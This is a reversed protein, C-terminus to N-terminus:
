HTHSSISTLAAELAAGELEARSRYLIHRGPMGILLIRPCATSEYEEATGDSPDVLVEGVLGSQKVFVQADETPLAIVAMIPGLRQARQLAGIRRAAAHCRPCGCFFMLPISPEKQQSLVCRNRNLDNLAFDPAVEGVDPGVKLPSSLVRDRAAWHTVGAFLIVTCSVIVLISRKM